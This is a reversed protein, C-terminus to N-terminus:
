ASTKTLWISGGAYCDNALDIPLRPLYQKLLGRQENLLYNLWFVIKFASNYQLFARLVYVENWFYGRAIFPEFYQFPYRVDHFHIHVGPKLRPLVSFMITHLDSGIKMVHSSDIFLIDNASLQEFLALPVDQVAREVITIRPYDDDTLIRRLNDCYPDIFTFNIMRNLYADNTDLMCASSNGSGIEVVRAPRLYRLMYHLIPADDYTFTDNHINYRASQPPEYFPEEQLYAAFARLYEIQIPLNVDIGLLDDQRSFVVDKRRLIEQSSPISSYFHGPPFVTKYVDLDAKLTRVYPLKDIWHKIRAKISM